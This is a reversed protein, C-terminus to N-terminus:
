DPGRGLDSRYIESEDFGRHGTRNLAQAADRDEGFPKEIVLRCWGPPQNLGVEAM